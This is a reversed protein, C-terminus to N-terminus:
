LVDMGMEDSVIIFIVIMIIMKIMIMTVMITMMIMMMVMIMMINHQRSFLTLQEPSIQIHKIWIPAAM